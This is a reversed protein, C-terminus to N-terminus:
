KRELILKNITQNFKDNFKFLQCVQWNSQYDNWKEQFTHGQSKSLNAAQCKMCFKVTCTQCEFPLAKNLNKFENRVNQIKETGFDNVEGVKYEDRGEYMAGHCPFVEGTLDVALIGEGASCIARSNGFWSFSKPELNHQYIYQMIKKLEVELVKLSDQFEDWNLESYLDPTPNYYGQLDYLDKFSEFLYPFGESSIVSKLSTKIGNEKLLKYANEVRESTGKGTKDVRITDTLHRGDYSIQIIVNLKKAYEKIEDIFDPILIGNTYFFYTFRDGFGDMIAKCYNWNIFPEGGWFNIQSTDKDKSLREILTEVKVQSNKLYLSSLGCEVGESCYTCALNCISTVNIDIHYGKNLGCQSM